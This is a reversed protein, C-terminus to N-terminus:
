YRLHGDTIANLADILPRARHPVRREELRWTHGGVTVLYLYYGADNCCATDTLRTTAILRRLTRLRAAALTFAQRKQGSPGGLTITAVASGDRDVVLDSALPDLGIARKFYVLLPAPGGYVAAAPRRASPRASGCGFAAGALTAALALVAFHSRM